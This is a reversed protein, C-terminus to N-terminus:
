GRTSNRIERPQNGFSSEPLFLLVGHIVTNKAPRAPSSGVVQPKPPCTKSHPLFPCIRFLRHQVRFDYPLFRAVNHTKPQKQALEPDLQPVTTAIKKGVNLHNANLKSPREEIMTLARPSASKSHLVRPLSRWAFVSVPVSSSRQAIFNLRSKCCQIQFSFLM